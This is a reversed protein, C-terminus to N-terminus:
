LAQCGALTHGFDRGIDHGMDHDFDDGLDTALADGLHQGFFALVLATYLAPQARYPGIHGPADTTWLRAGCAGAIAHGDAVLIFRDGESHIVLVPRGRLATAAGLPSLRRLDVGTLLRAVALAGPLFCAPLRSLRAHQRDIMSAFDAYASDTVLATVAPEEAAALLASAPGWRRGWCASATM